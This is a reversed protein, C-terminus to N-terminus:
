FVNVIERRIELSIIRELRRRMDKYCEIAIGFWESQSV